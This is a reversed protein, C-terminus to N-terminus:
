SEQASVYLIYDLSLSKIPDVFGKNNLDANGKDFHLVPTSKIM